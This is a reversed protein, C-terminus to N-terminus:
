SLLRDGIRGIDRIFIDLYEEAKYALDDEVNVDIGSNLLDARARRMAERAISSAVYRNVPKEGSETIGRWLASLGRFLARWDIWVPTSSREGYLFPRWRETELRYDKRHGVRRVSVLASQAMELLTDQVQKQSFCLVRAIHSPHGEGHVALYTVVDARVSVGFLSRILFAVCRPNRVPVERSMGRTRVQSRKFGYELFIDDTTTESHWPEGQIIFLPTPLADIPWQFKEIYKWRFCSKNRKTITKAVAQLLPRNGVRDSQLIAVLRQANIWQGNKVLWDLIEDFVRADYRAMDLSFLILPEPDIFWPLSYSAAGSVGLECWQSWIFNLLMERFDNKCIDFSTDM